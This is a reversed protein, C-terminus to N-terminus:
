CLNVGLRAALQACPRVLAQPCLPQKGAHNVPVLFRDNRDRQRAFLNYRMQAAPRMQEIQVQVPMRLFNQDLFHLVVMQAHLHNMSIKGPHAQILLDLHGKGDLQLPRGLAFLLAPDQLLHQNLQFDFAQNRVDGVHNSVVHRLHRQVVHQM